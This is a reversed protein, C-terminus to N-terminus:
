QNLRKFGGAIGIYESTKGFNPSLMQRNQVARVYEILDTETIVMGENKIETCDFAEV